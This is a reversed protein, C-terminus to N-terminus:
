DGDSGQHWSKVKNNLFDEMGRIDEDDIQM